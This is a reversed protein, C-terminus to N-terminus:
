RTSQRADRVVALAESLSKMEETAFLQDDIEALSAAVRKLLATGATTVTVRAPLGSGQQRLLPLASHHAPHNDPQISSRPTGHVKGIGAHSM